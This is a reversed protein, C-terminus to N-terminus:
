TYVVLMLFFFVDNKALFGPHNLFRKLRFTSGRDYCEDVMPHLFGHGLYVAFIVVFFVFGVESSKPSLLGPSESVTESSFQWRWRLVRRSVTSLADPELTQVRSGMSIDIHHGGTRRPAFPGLRFDAASVSQCCPLMPFTPRVSLCCALPIFDNANNRVGHKLGDTM